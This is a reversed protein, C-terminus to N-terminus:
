RRECSGRWRTRGAATDLATQFQAEAQSAVACLEPQRQPTDPYWYRLHMGVATIQTIGKLVAGLWYSWGSIFGV